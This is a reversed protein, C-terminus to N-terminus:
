RDFRDGTTADFRQRVAEPVLVHVTEGLDPVQRHGAVRAVVREGSALSCLLHREHGLEEVLDLIAAVTADGPGPALDIDEPRAGVVHDGGELAGPPFLNMPPSGLFSAVFVNAPRDYIEQPRGTQQLRGDRMLAVRTAMTMAEVQDHTVYLVTADFRRHLAVLETRTEGRLKADLNSLPEDMLFVAPRRVVARALAVRQRQGGSLQGPRRDLLGGLGLMGAAEAVAARRDPKDVGRAKLPFEINAAVTKNPYLAYSQFVMAVDRDRPAVDDVPRGDIAITGATPVELGAILRLVTSKGCGSPGLLVLFEGHGIALELGDVAAVDGFHKSVGSLAVTAM